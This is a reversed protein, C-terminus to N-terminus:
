SDDLCATSTIVTPAHHARESGDNFVAVLWVSQSAALRLRTKLTYQVPEGMIKLQLALPNPNEPLIVKLAKLHLGSPATIQAEFPVANGTDALRPFVLEIGESSLENLPKSLVLTHPALLCTGLAWALSSRRMPSHENSSPPRM